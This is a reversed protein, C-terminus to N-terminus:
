FINFITEYCAINTEQVFFTKLIRAFNLSFNASKETYLKLPDMNIQTPPPVYYQYFGHRLWEGSVLGLGFVLGLDWNSGIIKNM